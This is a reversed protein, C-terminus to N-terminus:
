LEVIRFEVDECETNDVKWDMEVVENHQFYDVVEKIELMEIDDAELLFELLETPKFTITNENGTLTFEEDVSDFKIEQNVRVEAVESIFTEVILKSTKKM